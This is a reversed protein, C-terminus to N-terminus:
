PLSQGHLQKQLADRFQKSCSSLMLPLLIRVAVSASNARMRLSKPVPKALIDSGKCWFKRPVDADDEDAPTSPDDCLAL